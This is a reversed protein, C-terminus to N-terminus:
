GTGSTWSLPTGLLQCPLSSARLAWACSSPCSSPRALTWCPQLMRPMMVVTHVHDRASQEPSLRATLLACPLRPHSSCFPQVHEPIHPLSDSALLAARPMTLSDDLRWPEGVSGDQRLLINGAACLPTLARSSLAWPITDLCTACM